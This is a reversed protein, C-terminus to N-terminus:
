PAELIEFLLHFTEAPYVKFTHGDKVVWDSESIIWSYGGASPYLSNTIAGIACAPGGMFELLEAANDLYQVAERPDSKNQVTHIM